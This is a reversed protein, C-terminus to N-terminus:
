EDRIIEFVPKIETGIVQNTTEYIRPIELPIDPNDDLFEQCEKTIDYGTLLIENSIRYMPQDYLNPLVVNPIVVYQRLYYEKSLGQQIEIGDIM